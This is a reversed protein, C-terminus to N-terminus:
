ILEISSSSGGLVRILFIFAARSLCVSCHYPVGVCNWVVIPSILFPLGFLRLVLIWSMFSLFVPFYVHSFSTFM